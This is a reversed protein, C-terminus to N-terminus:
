RYHRRKKLLHYCLEHSFKILCMILILYIFIDGYRSYLTIRDCDIRVERTLVDETFLDSRATVRGFPDIFASFGTNAARIFPRRNEVARFVCMSLLQYPASTMGFWADNTLNVFLIAGNKVEGRPLDPFIAEYCILAGATLNPMNLLGSQDGPSFDGSATVLRNIFPMFRRLPVYEGFPVLHIKDYYGALSGNPYILYVRNYYWIRIDEERYAPSGFILYAGSEKAIRYIDESSETNEQFFFPVATEPWIILDPMSVMASRTLDRYIDMTSEKFAPDWKVSQDINGQIVSTIISRGGKDDRQDNSLCFGGYFLCILLFAIVVSTELIFERKLRKYAKRFLLIYILVNVSAILFSIGYVGTIDCIQILAHHSFQSYGLLCWPFGTLLIARLYELSVWIGAITLTMLRQPGLLSILFSFVAPYLSLYLCFLLLISFSTLLDLGGYTTTVFIIWYILTLYHSLGTIMGLKFANLPSEKDLSIFLLPVIAIWAMWDLNGPPFSATLMLGSIIALLIKKGSM